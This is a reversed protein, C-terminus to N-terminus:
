KARSMGSKQGLEINERWFFQIQLRKVAVHPTREADSPNDARGNRDRGTLVNNEDYRSPGFASGDLAVNDLFEILQTRMEGTACEERRAQLKLARADGALREGDDAERRQNKIVLALDERGVM